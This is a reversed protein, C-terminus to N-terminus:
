PNTGSASRASLTRDLLAKWASDYHHVDRAPGSQSVLPGGAAHWRFIGGRLNYAKSVGLGPLASQVRALMIGSRVGVACYFVVPRGKIEAGYQAMFDAASMGPDIRRAGAIHSQAFEDAERVDFLVAEHSLAGLDTQTIEPVRYSQAVTAEIDALTVKPNTPDLGSVRPWVGVAVLLVGVAVAMGALALRRMTSM